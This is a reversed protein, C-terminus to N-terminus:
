SQKGQCELSSDRHQNNQQDNKQKQRNSRVRSPRVTAAPTVIRRTTESDDEYNKQNQQQHVADSLRVRLKMLVDARRLIAALIQTKNSAAAM